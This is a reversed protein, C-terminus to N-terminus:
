RDYNYFSGLNTNEYPTIKHTYFYKIALSGAVTFVRKAFIATLVENCFFPRFSVM